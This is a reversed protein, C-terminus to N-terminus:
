ISPHPANNIIEGERKREKEIKIGVRNIPYGICKFLIYRMDSIPFGILRTEVLHGIHMTTIAISVEESGLFLDFM